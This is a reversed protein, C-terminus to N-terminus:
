DHKDTACRQVLTLRRFLVGNESEDTEDRYSARPQNSLSAMNRTSLWQCHLRGDFPRVVFASARGRELYMHHRLCRPHADRAAHPEATRGWRPRELVSCDAPNAISRGLTTSSRCDRVYSLSELGALDSGGNWLTGESRYLWILHLREAVKENKQGNWQEIEDDIGSGSTLVPQDLIRSESDKVFVM